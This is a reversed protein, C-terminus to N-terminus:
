YPLRKTQETFSQNLTAILLDRSLGKMQIIISKVVFM